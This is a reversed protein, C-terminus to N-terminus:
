SRARRTHQEPIKQIIKLHNWDGEKVPIVNTKVNWMRHVETTFYKHKPIKERKKKEQDHKYITRKGITPM